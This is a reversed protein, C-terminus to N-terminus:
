FTHENNLFELMYVPFYYINGDSSFNDYNFVYAEDFHYSNQKQMFYTLSSHRKYDKGSKIEIPIANGGKQILFDMEGHKKNDYYWLNKFDHTMMLQASVNEFVSGFNIDKEKNLIKKIVGTDMLHFCLMGTDGEFLKVLNRKENLKFPYEPSTVNYVPYAIGAKVLWSFDDNIEYSENKGVVSNMVFRKNKSNIQGSLAEYVDLLHVRDNAQAYQIIDRRNMLDIRQHALNLEQLDKNKLYSIVADPMGGVFLYEYFLDLIKKHLIEPVKKRKYFCDKLENINEEIVNNAWLYEEFDMPYMRLEDLSGGPHLGEMTKYANPSKTISNLTVGLLSGSLVFRFRDDKVLYKSFMEWDIETVLQIEDLFILTKNNVFPKKAYYSLNTIFEQATKVKNFTEISDRHEDFNFEFFNDKFNRKGFETISYTKGVQRAGDILLVTDRELWKELYNTVKRKLM